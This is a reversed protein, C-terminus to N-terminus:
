VSIYGGRSSTRPRINSCLHSVVDSLMYPVEKWFNRHPILDAGRAGYTSYNYYAGLGFYAALSLFIIPFFWGIGSGGSEHDDKKKDDEKDDGKNGGEGEQFPCGAPGSWEVELSSGDYRMFQADSTKEPDCEITLTLSQPKSLSTIPSPYDPGHLILSIFKKPPSTLYKPQLTSMQVIPIVSTIRDEENPRKNSKTLCARTGSPCQDRESLGSQPELDACLNFRLSDVMTTPPTERTRNVVHEGALATLDFTGTNFIMVHCDFTDAKAHIVNLAFIFIFSLFYSHQQPRLIM